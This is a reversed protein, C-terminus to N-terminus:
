LAPVFAGRLVQGSGTCTFTRNRLVTADIHIVCNFAFDNVLVDEDYVDLQVTSGNSLTAPFRAPSWTAFRTNDHTTTRGVNVSDVYVIVFPDPASNDADWVLGNPDTAPLDASAIEVV